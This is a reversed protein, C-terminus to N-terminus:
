TAEPKRSAPGTDSLNRLRVKGSGVDLEAVFELPIDVPRCAMDAVVEFAIRQNVEDTEKRMQVEITEPVLRPEHRLLSRRLAAALDHVALADMTLHTMDDVGYNLVSERVHDLGELDICSGLNVTNVLDGLDLDLNRRLQWENAGRRRVSGRQTLVRADDADREDEVKRSDGMAAAERFAYLLPVQLPKIRREGDDTM